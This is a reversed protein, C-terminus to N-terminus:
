KIKIKTEKSSGDSFLEVFSTAIFNNNFVIELSCNNCFYNFKGNRSNLYGMTHSENCKPCIPRRIRNVNEKTKNNGAM